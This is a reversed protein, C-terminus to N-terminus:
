KKKKCKEQESKKNKTAVGIKLVNKTIIKMHNQMDKIWKRSIFGLGEDHKNNKQFGRNIKM